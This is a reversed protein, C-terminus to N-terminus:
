LAGYRGSPGALRSWWLVRRGITADLTLRDGLRAELLVLLACFVLVYIISPGVDTSGPTYPGGFGEATSWIMLSYCAGGIYVVRRSVGLLLTIAIMTEVIAAFYAWLQPAPRQLRIWFDFWPMLWHPQGAATALMSPLLTARFGPQWKLWADIAWIM